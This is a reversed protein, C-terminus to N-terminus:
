KEGQKFVVNRDTRPVIAVAWPTTVVQTVFRDRSPAQVAFLIALDGAEVEAKLIRVVYGGTPREGAHVAVAMETEENLNRPPDQGVQSWFGAWSRGSRLVQTTFEPFGRYQGRWQPIEAPATAPAVPQAVLPRAAAHLPAPSPYPASAGAASALFIPFLVLTPSKM